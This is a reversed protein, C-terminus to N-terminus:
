LYRDIARALSIWWLIRSDQIRTNQIDQKRSAREIKARGSKSAHPHFSTIKLSHTLCKGEM